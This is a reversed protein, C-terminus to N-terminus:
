AQKTMVFEQDTSTNEKNTSFWHRFRAFLMNLGITRPVKVRVSELVAIM